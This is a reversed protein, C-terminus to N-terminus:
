RDKSNRKKSCYLTERETRRGHLYLQRSYPFTEKQRTFLRLRHNNHWARQNDMYTRLQGSKHKDSARWMAEMKVHTLFDHASAQQRGHLTHSHLRSKAAVCRERQLHNTQNRTHKWYAKKIERGIDIFTSKRVDFMYPHHYSRCWVNGFADIRAEDFRDDGNTSSECLTPCFAIFRAGDYRYLGNWSSMWVFGRQDQCIGTVKNHRFGDSDGFTHISVSENEAHIITYALM